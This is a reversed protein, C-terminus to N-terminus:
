AGSRPASGARVGRPPRGAIARLLLLTALVVLWPAALWGALEVVDALGLEGLLLAALLRAPPIMTWAAILWALAIVYARHVLAGWRGRTRRM